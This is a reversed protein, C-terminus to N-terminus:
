VVPVFPDYGTLVGQLWSAWTGWVGTVLALGLIVLMAGGVRMIARRHRRLFGVMRASSELGLAVLLFPLGLGVCFAVALLAGRGASGGDLSLTLIAALTPGICPTWGLGFTVGLLPAGWLGARPALHVRRENQLFPILGLFGLGMVIVVLGLVRTVPDQWRLLLGGLSGALAGYAVFVATFGAVFLGVGLLVRSRAPAVREVTATTTRATGGGDGTTADGTAVTTGDTLFTTGASTTGATTTGATTTGATTTGATTTGAAASTAGTRASRSAGAGSMGGLFGLYGPVLPLVCPSAFSVLGAILAVPVALLLSGSVVAQGFVDGVDAAVPVGAALAPVVAATM